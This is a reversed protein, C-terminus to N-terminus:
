SVNLPSPLGPSLPKELDGELKLTVEPIKEGPMAVLFEKPHAAPASSVLTGEFVTLGSAGGPIFAGKLSQEFYQDGNQGVLGRKIALWLRTQEEYGRPPPQEQCLVFPVVSIFLLILPVRSWHM